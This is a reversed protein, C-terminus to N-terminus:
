FTLKLKFLFNIYDAMTRLKGMKSKGWKRPKYVIPIESIKFGKKASRVIFEMYSPYGNESLDSIVAEIVERKILRFGSSLDKIPLRSINAVLRNIILSVHRKWVRKDLFAGGNIFRSGIVLDSKSKEMEKLLEPIFLPDHNLDADLTLVHSYRKSVKKFGKKYATGIGLPDRFYIWDINKNKSKLNKLIGISDRDGQIVFFIKYDTLISSFIRILSKTLPILNGKENYAPILCFLKIQSKKM